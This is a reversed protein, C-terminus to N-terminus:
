VSFNAAGDQSADAGNVAFGIQMGDRELIVTPVPKDRREVEKMRFAKAYWEATRDLDTVPLALVDQQYPFAREFLQSGPM